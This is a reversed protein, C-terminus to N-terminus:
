EHANYYEIHVSKDRYFLWECSLQTIYWLYKEKKPLKALANPMVFSNMETKM